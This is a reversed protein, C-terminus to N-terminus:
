SPSRRKLPRISVGLRRLSSRAERTKAESWPRPVRVGGRHTVMSRQKQLSKMDAGVSPDRTRSSIFLPHEEHAGELQRQIRHGRVLVRADEPIEHRQGGVRAWAADPDIDALTMKILAEQSAGTLMTLYAVAAPSAKAYRSLAALVEPTPRSDFDPTALLRTADVSLCWGVSFAAAQAARLRTLAASTATISRILKLLFQAMEEDDPEADLLFERVADFAQDYEAQVMEFEHRDLLQDCGDLFFPWDDEPVEPWPAPADRVPPADDVQVQLETIYRWRMRWHRQMDKHHRRLTQPEVTLWLECDAVAAIEIFKQWVAPLARHADVVVLERTRAGLLWAQLDRFSEEVNRASGGRHFDKGLGAALDKAVPLTRGKQFPSVTMVVREGNRHSRLRQRIDAEAARLECVYLRPDPLPM